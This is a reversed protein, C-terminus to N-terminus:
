RRSPPNTNAKYYNLLEIMYEESLDELEDAKRQKARTEQLKSQQNDERTKTAFTPKLAISLRLGVASLLTLFISGYKQGTNGFTFSTSAQNQCAIKLDHRAADPNPTNQSLFLIMNHKHPREPFDFNSVVDVQVRV